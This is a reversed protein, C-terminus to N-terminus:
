SGQELSCTFGPKKIRAPTRHEMVIRGQPSRIDFVDDYLCAECSPASSFHRVGNLFTSSFLVRERSQEAVTAMVPSRRRSTTPAYERVASYLLNTLGALNVLIPLAPSTPLTLMAQRSTASGESFGGSFVPAYVFVFYYAALFIYHLSM